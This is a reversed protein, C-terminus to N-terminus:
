TPATSCFESTTEANGVNSGWCPIHPSEPPARQRSIFELGGGTVQISTRVVYGGPFEDTVCGNEIPAKSTANHLCATVTSTRHTTHRQRSSSPCIHVGCRATRAHDSPKPTITANSEPNIGETGAKCIRDSRSGHTLTLEPREGPKSGLM